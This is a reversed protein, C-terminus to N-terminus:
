FNVPQVDYTSQSYCLRRTRWEVKNVQMREPANNHDYQEKKYGLNEKLMCGEDEGDFNVTELEYQRMWLFIASESLNQCIRINIIQRWNCYINLHNKWMMNRWTRTTLKQTDSIIAVGGRTSSKFFLM